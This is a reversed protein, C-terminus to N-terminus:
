LAVRCKMKLDLICRMYFKVCMFRYWYGNITSWESRWNEVQEYADMTWRMSAEICNWFWDWATSEAQVFCTTTLSESPSFFRQMIWILNKWNHKYLSVSEFCPSWTASHHFKKRAAICSCLTKHSHQAYSNNTPAAGRELANKHAPDFNWRYRGPLFPM